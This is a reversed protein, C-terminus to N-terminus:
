DGKIYYKHGISDSEFGAIYIKLVKKRYAKPIYSRVYTSYGEETIDKILDNNDFLRYIVGIARTDGTRKSYQRESCKAM